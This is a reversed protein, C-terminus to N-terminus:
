PMQYTELKIGNLVILYDHGDAQALLGSTTNDNFRLPVSLMIKGDPISLVKLARSTTFDFVGDSDTLHPNGCRYLALTEAKNLNERSCHPGALNKYSSDIPDSGPLDAIASVHAVELLAPCTDSADMVIRKWGGTPTFEPGYVMNYRCTATPRMDPVSIATADVAFTETGRFYKKGPQPIFQMNNLMLIGHNNLKLEGDVLYSDTTHVRSLVSFTSLDVVAVVSERKRAGSAELKYHYMRLRIVLFKGGPVLILEPFINTDSNPLAGAFTLTEERPAKTQWSSVRKLTLQGDKQWLLILLSNDPALAWHFTTGNSDKIVEQTHLTYTTTPAPKQAQGCLALSLVLVAFHVRAFM